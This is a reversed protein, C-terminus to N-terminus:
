REFVFPSVDEPYADGQQRESKDHRELRAIERPLFGAQRCGPQAASNHECSDAQRPILQDFQRQPQEDQNRNRRQQNNGPRSLRDKEDRQYKNEKGDLAPKVSPRRWLRSLFFALFLLTPLTLIYPSVSRSLRWNKGM